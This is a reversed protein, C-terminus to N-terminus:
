ITMNRSAFRRRRKRTYCIVVTYIIAMMVLCAAAVADVVTRSIIYPIAAAIYFVVTYYSLRSTASSEAAYVVDDGGESAGDDGCTGEESPDCHEYPAEITYTAMYIIISWLGLINHDESVLHYTGIVFIIICVVSGPIVHFLDNSIRM